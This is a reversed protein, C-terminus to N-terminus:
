RRTIELQGIQFGSADLPSGTPDRLTLALDVSPGPPALAALRRSVNLRMNYSGQDAPPPVGPASPGASAPSLYVAGEGLFGPHEPGSDADVQPFAAVLLFARVIASTRDRSLGILHLYAGARHEAGVVLPVGRFEAVGPRGTDTREM